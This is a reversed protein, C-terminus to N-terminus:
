AESTSKEQIKLNIKRKVSQQLKINKNQEIEAHQM